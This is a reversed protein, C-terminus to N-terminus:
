FYIYLFSFLEAAPASSRPSQRHGAPTPQLLQTPIAHSFPLPHSASLLSNKHRNNKLSLLISIEQGLDWWSSEGLRWIPTVQQLGPFMNRFLREWGPSRLDYPCGGRWGWTQPSGGGNQSVVLIFILLAMRNRSIVLSGTNQVRRNQVLHPVSTGQIHKM